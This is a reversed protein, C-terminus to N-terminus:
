FYNKKAFGDQFKKLERRLEVGMGLIFYQLLDFNKKAGKQM